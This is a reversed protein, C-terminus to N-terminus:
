IFLTKVIRGTPEVFWRENTFPIAAFRAAMWEATYISPVPGLNAAPVGGVSHRSDAYIVLQRPAKMAQFMRETHELPSLEDFEGALCLYPMKIKDVHGEWTLTKGFKDFEDENPIGSMYMFRKKFTPSAEQFITHCGPELCTAAVAVAVYRPEASAAITSFLSGFSSGIIGIKQADIEPREALWNFMAQGAAQWAPVSVRIGLLASEYQGPGEVVLVAIGRSLFRDGSLAVSREKYGDMGPISVVCPVRQGSQYRYPLHFWAPVTKGEIAIWAPEVRHDAVKAYKLYCERKKQNFFINKDNNEDIPWQAGGWYNAAMFYNDRAGVLDGANQAEIARTERRRAVAEFAPTIDAFKQVRSRIATIDNTAEPGLAAALGPLRPQDWDIGNARIINDLVWRQEQYRKMTPAPVGDPKPPPPAKPDLSSLDPLATMTGAAAPATPLLQAPAPAQAQAVRTGTAGVALATVAQVFTRRHITMRDGGKKAPKM